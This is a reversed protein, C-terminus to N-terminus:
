CIVFCFLKQVQYFSFLLFLFTYAIIKDSTENESKNNNTPFFISLLLSKEIIASNSIQNKAFFKKFIKMKM